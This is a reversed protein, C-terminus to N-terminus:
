RLGTDPDDLRSIASKTTKIRRLEKVIRGIRLEALVERAEQDHLRTTCPVALGM